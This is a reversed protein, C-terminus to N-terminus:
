AMARVRFSSAIRELLGRDVQEAEAAKQFLTMAALADPQVDLSAFIPV